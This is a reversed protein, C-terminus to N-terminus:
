CLTPIRYLTRSVTHLDGHLIHPNRSHLYVLARGTGIIQLHLSEHVPLKAPSVYPSVIRALYRGQVDEPRNKILDALSGNEAFPLVM